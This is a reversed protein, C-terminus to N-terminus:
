EVGIKTCIADIKQCLLTLTRNIDAKELWEDQSNAFGEYGEVVDDIVEGISLGLDKSWSELKEATINKISCNLNVTDTTKPMVTFYNYQDNHHLTEKRLPAM